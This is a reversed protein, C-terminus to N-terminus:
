KRIGMSVPSSQHALNNQMLVEVLHSDNRGLSLRLAIEWPEGATAGM